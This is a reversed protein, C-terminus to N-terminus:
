PDDAGEADFDGEDDGQDEGLMHSPLVPPGDASGHQWRYLFRRLPTIVLALLVGAVCFAWLRFAGTDGVFVWARPLLTLLLGAAAGGVLASALEAPGPRGLRRVALRAARRVFAAGVLFGSVFLLLRVLLAASAGSRVTVYAVASALAVGATVTTWRVFRNRPGITRHTM